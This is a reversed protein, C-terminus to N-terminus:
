EIVLHDAALRIRIRSFYGMKRVAWEDAAARMVSEDIDIARDEVAYGAARLARRAGTVGASHAPLLGQGIGFELAQLPLTRNTRLAAIHDDFPNDPFLKKGGDFVDFYHRSLAPTIEITQHQVWPMDNLNEDPGLRVALARQAEPRPLPDLGLPLFSKHGGRQLILERLDVTYFAATGSQLPSFVGGAQDYACTAFFMAVDRSRSFDLLQTPYQYHQAISEISLAFDLGAIQYAMLDSTAPHRDMVASLEISKAVWYLAEVDSKARFISPTCTSFIQNQGRYLRPSFEPGPMFRYRGASTAVPILLDVGLESVIGYRNIWSEDDPFNMPMLLHAYEMVSLLRKGQEMLM